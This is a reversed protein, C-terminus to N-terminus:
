LKQSSPQVSQLLRRKRHNPTQICCVSDTMCQCDGIMWIENQCRSYIIASATLRETPHTQLREIDAKKETYVHQILATVQECFESCTIEAKMKKIFDSILLM